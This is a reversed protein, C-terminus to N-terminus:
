EKKLEKVVLEAYGAIDQWSDIYQPDGNCIRAIKHMIMDLAEHMYDDMDVNTTYSKLSQSLQSFDKFEGYRSGREELIENTTKVNNLVPVNTNFPKLDVEKRAESINEIIDLEFCKKCAGDSNLTNGCIDCTRM